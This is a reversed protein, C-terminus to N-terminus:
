RMTYIVTHFQSLMTVDYSGKESEFGHRVMDYDKSDANAKAM